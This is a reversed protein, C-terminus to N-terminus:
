LRRATRPRRRRHGAVSTQYGSSNFNIKTGDTLTRTYVGGSLSLTAKWRRKARELKNCRNALYKLESEPWQSNGIDDM